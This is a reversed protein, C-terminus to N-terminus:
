MVVSAVNRTVDVTVDCVVFCEYCLLFSYAVPCLEAFFGSMIKVHINSVRYRPIRPWLGIM